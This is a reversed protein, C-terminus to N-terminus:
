SLNNQYCPEMSFALYYLVLLAIYITIYVSWKMIVAPLLFIAINLFARLLCISFMIHRKHILNTYLKLLFTIEFLMMVYICYVFLSNIIYDWNRIIL